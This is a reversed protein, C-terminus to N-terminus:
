STCAIDRTSVRVAPQSMIRPIADHYATTSRRRAARDLTRRRRTITSRRMWRRRGHRHRAGARRAEAAIASCRTRCRRRSSRRAGASRRVAARAVPLERGRAHPRGDRRAAGRSGDHLVRRARRRPRRRQLRAGIAVVGGSISELLADILARERTSIARRRRAPSSATFGRSTSARAWSRRRSASCCSRTARTRSTRARSTRSRSSSGSWASRGADPYVAGTRIRTTSRSTAAPSRRASRAARKAWAARGSRAAPLLGRATASQRLQSQEHDGDPARRHVRRQAGGRRRRDARRRAAISTSTAATATPRAARARTDTGRVRVVAADGGPGIVTNTRVTTDYQRYVWTKSAITPSSLLQTSRGRPIASKPASPRDRAVDRARLAVVEASERAEPTYTPCDTVLRIGPFEAVVRDGETVRYVPEAIVEGIVAATLDWKELIARVEDERGRKAVVLM